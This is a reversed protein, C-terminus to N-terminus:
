GAVPLPPAPAPPSAPRTTTRMLFRPVTERLEWESLSLGWPASHPSPRSDLVCVEEHFFYLSNRKCAKFRIFLCFKFFFFIASFKTRREMKFQSKVSM